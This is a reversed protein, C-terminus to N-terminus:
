QTERVKMRSQEREWEDVADTLLRECAMSLTRTTATAFQRVRVLLAKPLRVKISETNRVRQAMSIIYCV